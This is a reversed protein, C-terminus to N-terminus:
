EMELRDLRVMPQHPQASDNQLKKCGLCLMAKKRVGEERDRTGRLKEVQSTRTHEAWSPWQANNRRFAVKRITSDRRIISISTTSVSFYMQLSYGREENDGRKENM